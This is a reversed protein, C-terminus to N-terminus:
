NKVYGKSAPDTSYQRKIPKGQKFELYKRFECLCNELIEDNLNLSSFLLNKKLMEIRQELTGSTFMVKLGKVAGPGIECKSNKDLFSFFYTFDKVCENTHFKYRNHPKGQFAYKPYIECIEEVLEKMSSYKNKKLMSEVEDSVLHLVETIFHRGSGKGQPFCPRQYAESNFIVADKMMESWESVDHKVLIDLLASNSGSFRYLMVLYVTSIKPNSKVLDLLYQTGKDDKRDLNNIYAKRLIEDDTWPWPLGAKKKQTIRFREEIFYWFDDLIEPYHYIKYLDSM